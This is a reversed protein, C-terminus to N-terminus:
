AKKKGNFLKSERVYGYKTAQWMDGTHVELATLLGEGFAYTDIALLHGADFVRGNHQPTHGVVVTKGSVHPAPMRRTIHEWFLAAPPQAHLPLEPLYNAHVFLHTDTEHYQVCEAMFARHTEPIYQAEGGYSLLTAKGGAALWSPMDAPNDLAVLCMIEHNGILSILNCESRLQLLRDIVGRANPGRDIYDGLTIITDDATPAIRDLIGSLAKSCGHIDGIAIVRSM